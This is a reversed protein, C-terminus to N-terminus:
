RVPRDGTLRVDLSARMALRRRARIPLASRDVYRGLQLGRGFLLRGDGPRPLAMGRDALRVRRPQSQLATRRRLRRGHPVRCPHLCDANTSCVSRDPEYLVLPECADDPDIPAPDACAPAVPRHPPLHLDERNPVDLVTTTDDAGGAAEAGNDPAQPRDDAVGAADAGNDPAHPTDARSSEGPANCALLGLALLASVPPHRM